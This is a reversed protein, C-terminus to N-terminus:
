WDLKTTEPFGIYEVVHQCNHLFVRAVQLIKHLLSCVFQHFLLFFSVRKEM